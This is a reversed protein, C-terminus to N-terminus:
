GLFEDKQYVYNENVGEEGTDVIRMVSTIQYATGEYNLKKQLTPIKEQAEEITEFDGMIDFWGFITRSQIKYM